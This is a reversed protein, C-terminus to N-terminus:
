SVQLIGSTRPPKHHQGNKNIRASDAHECPLDPKGNRLEHSDSVWACPNEEIATSAATKKLVDSTTMLESTTALLTACTSTANIHVM